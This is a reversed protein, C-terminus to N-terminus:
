WVLMKLGSLGIVAVIFSRAWAVPLFAQLRTGAAAGLLAPVVALLSARMLEPEAAEAAWLSLGLLLSLILVGLSIAQVTQDVGIRLAMMYPVLPVVQSGTLGTLLGNLFGVPV